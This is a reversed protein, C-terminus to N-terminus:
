AVVPNVVWGGKRGRRVSERLLFSVLENSGLCVQVGCDVHVCESTSRDSVGVDWQPTIDSCGIRNVM